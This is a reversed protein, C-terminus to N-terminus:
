IIKNLYNCIQLNWEEPHEFKVHDRDIGCVNFVIEELEEEQIGFTNLIIEKLNNEIKKYFRFIFNIYITSKLNNV